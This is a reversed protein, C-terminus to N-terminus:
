KGIGSYDLWKYGIQGGTGASATGTGLIGLRTAGYMGTALGGLIGGFLSGKASSRAQVARNRWNAAEFQGGYLLQMASVAGEADTDALVDIPSGENVDIGSAGFSARQSAALRRYKDREQAAQNKAQAEAIKANAEYGAAQNQADGYAGISGLLQTGVSLGLAAPAMYAGLGSLAGAVPGM